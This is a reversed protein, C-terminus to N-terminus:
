LGFGTAVHDRQLRVAMWSLARQRRPKRIRFVCRWQAPATGDESRGPSPRIPRHRRGRGKWDWPRKGSHSGPRWVERRGDGCRPRATEPRFTGNEKTKAVVYLTGTSADIVPTGTIGIEPTIDCCEGVDGSSVTTVGAAPNIFSVHWLATGGSGDADFAYVSDHETSVYVVNRTGVGPINVNPLYLPSAHSIGDTAYSSLKGFKTTNVNAPTLVTELTNQGTRFNDNHHTLLGPNTAIIFVTASSSTVLDSTTVTVTHTGVSPPPTYMGATTITGLSASGGVVSDVSWIVSGSGPGSVTFQQTQAPTLVATSPNISFGVGTGTLLITQPSGAANDTIAVTASRVAAVTPKFTVSITCSANVALSVGCTNTQAFDGSQAGTVAISGISLAGGGTNTLTVVSATSTTGVAQNPFAISNSSLSVVPSTTSGLPTAMDAQIGAANLAVNYVRIEDIMGSFYQGYLSDGGIQLPNLSTVISGTQARNAVETGNVYLRQVAGDYTAALHTWTNLPLTTLGFTEAHSSGVTQGIGPVGGATTTAELYYNDDGKYIVDRWASSVATPNVWAELTFGTTLHLSASDNITIQATTGNFMLASGYKGSGTWTANSIAGNNGNGSLDTATTGSGENFSYASVLQPNTALTTATAVNSYPGLNGAADQARVIYSYSTNVTLGTDNYSTGTITFGFKTFVTCGVGQCRELRYGTVGVDDTAAGWALDIELGSVATATLTGPASPPTTDPAATTASAINSYPGLNAAADTARVRYSYSTGAALGTDNYATTATTGVQAFTSCGAGQCREVLYGTVGVNDTAATWGLNIGTSGAATATLNAPTTPPQTDPATTTATAVNSYGSLNGAADAARVRYSYSTGATLGPDNYTTAAPAAVQAFSSCGAGQCREVRYGAVAVNDTSAAWSLNIQSAGAATVTLSTPATPSQTDAAGGIPTNMDAAIEAASLARNYIRVEDITGKFYFGGSRRGINVNVSPNFQAAPITGVLAGNDLVGNVYMNLTQAAANYVGAVFYWTNIARVTQSYRQTISTSSSVGIGFTHSGTDPSTKFEWGTGNSKAIIQGDDPPNGTAMIWASWTMSGTLQLAAPNGLDVYSSTGNYSLAGGYKGTTTWTTGQVTGTLGNGSWDTVTTGLGENFGYAAVLGSTVTLTTATAVLSYASLNGAADTARVRYSYSTGATLGTDSYATTASTAIPAFTSCGAGQCREVPYGTVAVNDTSATWSLNIQASSFATAAVNAPVTPAQTDPNPTTATAVLSYASLNGAADTARVRYSYSTGATLGTDSYATTASTAIPAFTSCGAGQCREVPYGTVGVNDTSATWSLNIQASSFATATVNAPTTPPTTDPASTTTTAVNSYGSLNNAPDSARVRYSYSTGAALGTNSYATTAPTAIEAFVTCGAGQCREVHYTIPSSADTSATWSLNIQTNGAATAALNTPITPPTTDPPPRKGRCSIGGDADGM